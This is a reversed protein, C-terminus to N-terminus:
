SRLIKKTSDIASAIKQYHPRRRESGGSRIIKTATEAIVKKAAANAAPLAAKKVAKYTRRGKKLPKAQKDRNQNAIASLKRAGQSVATKASSYDQKDMARAARKFTQALCDIRYEAPLSSCEARGNDIVRVISNTEGNSFAVQFGKSPAFINEDTLINLRPKNVTQAAEFNPGTSALAFNGIALSILTTSLLKTWDLIHSNM